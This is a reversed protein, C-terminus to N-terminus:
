LGARKGVELRARFSKWLGALCPPLEMAPSGQPKGHGTYVGPARSDAFAAAGVAWVSSMAM